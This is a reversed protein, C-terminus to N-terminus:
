IHNDDNYEKIKLPKLWIRRSSSYVLERSLSETLSNTINEKLKVYNIFIIDNSLFHKVINYICHIYRSKGSYMNSQARRIAPQSECHGYIELVLKALM